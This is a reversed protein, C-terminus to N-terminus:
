AAMASHAEDDRESLRLWRPDKQVDPVIVSQQSQIVWGALGEHQSFALSRERESDPLGLTARYVLNGSISDIGLIAGMDAGVSEAMMELARNLVMDMDLSSTLGTTIRYLFEIRDREQQLEETRKQVAQELEATFQRTRSFLRANQIAGAIQEAVTSLVRQDDMNFARTTKDDSLVLAGVVEDSAIMPFGVFAKAKTIKM